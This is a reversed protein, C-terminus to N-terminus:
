CCMKAIEEGYVQGCVEVIRVLTGVSGAVTRAGVGGSDSGVDM